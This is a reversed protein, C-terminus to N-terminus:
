MLSAFAEWEKRVNGWSFRESIVRSQNEADFKGSRLQKIAKKMSKKTKNAYRVVNKEQETEVHSFGRIIEAFGMTTEELAGLDTTVVKVGASLAEMIAIGATEQFTCPYVMLDARQLNSIYKEKSTFKELIVNRTDGLMEVAQGSCFDCSCCHVRLVYDEKFGELAASLIHLGRNHQPTYVIELKSNNKPIYPIADFANHIIFIKSEDIFYNSMMDQKHFESQVIFAVINERVFEDELFADIEMPMQYAPVHIWVITKHTKALEFDEVMSPGGPILVWNYKHLSDLSPFIDSLVKGAMYGTGRPEETKQYPISGIL